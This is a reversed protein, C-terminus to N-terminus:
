VQVRNRRLMVRDYLLIAVIVGAWVLSAEIHRGQQKRALQAVAGGLPPGFVPRAAVGTHDPAGHGVDLAFPRLLAQAPRQVPRKLGGEGRPPGSIM